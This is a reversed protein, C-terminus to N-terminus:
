GAHICLILLARCGGNLAVDILRRETGVALHFPDLPLAIGGPGYRVTGQM